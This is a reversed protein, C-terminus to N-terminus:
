IAPSTPIAARAPAPRLFTEATGRCKGNFKRQRTSVFVFMKVRDGRPSSSSDFFSDRAHLLLSKFKFFVNVCSLNIIYILLTNEIKLNNGGPSFLIHTLSHQRQGKTEEHEALRRCILFIFGVARRRRIRLPSFLILLLFTMRLKECM